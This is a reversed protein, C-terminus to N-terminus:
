IMIYVCGSNIGTSLDIYYQKTGNKAILWCTKENIRPLDVFSHFSRQMSVIQNVKDVSDTTPGCIEFGEGYISGYESLFVKYENLSDINFMDVDRGLNELVSSIEDNDISSGRNFKETKLFRDVKEHIIVEYDEEDTKSEYTSFCDDLFDLFDKSFFRSKGNLRKFIQLDHM